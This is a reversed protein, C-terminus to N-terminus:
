RMTVIKRDGRPLPRIDWYQRAARAETIDFYHKMVIQVSTVSSMFFVVRDSGQSRWDICGIIISFIWILLFEM